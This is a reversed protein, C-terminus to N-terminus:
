RDDGATLLLPKYSTFFGDIIYNVFLSEPAYNISVEANNFIPM